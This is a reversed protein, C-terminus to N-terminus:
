FYAITYPLPKFASIFRNKANVLKRYGKDTYTIQYFKLAINYYFNHYRPLKVSSLNINIKNKKKCVHDIFKNYQAIILNITVNRSEHKYYYEFHISVSHKM